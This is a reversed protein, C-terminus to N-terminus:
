EVLTDQNADYKKIPVEYKDDDKDNENKPWKKHSAKVLSYWNVKNM